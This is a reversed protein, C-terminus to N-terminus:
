IIFNQKLLHPPLTTKGKILKQKVKLKQKNSHLWSKILTKPM